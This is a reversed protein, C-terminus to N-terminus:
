VGEEHKRFPFFLNVSIGHRYTAGSPKRLDLGWREAVPALAREVEELLARVRAEDHSALPVSPVPRNTRPM